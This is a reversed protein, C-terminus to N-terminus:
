QSNITTLASQRDMSGLGEQFAALREPVVYGAWRMRMSKMVRIINPFPYSNHLENHLKGMGGIVEDRTLGFIKRLVLNEFVRLRHVERLV